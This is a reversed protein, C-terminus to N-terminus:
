SAFRGAKSQQGAIDPKIGGFKALGWDYFSDGGSPLFQLSPIWTINECMANFAVAAAAPIAVAPAKIAVGAKASGCASANPWIASIELM